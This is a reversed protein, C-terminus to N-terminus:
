DCCRVGLLPTHDPDIIKGSLLSIVMNLRTKQERLSGLAAQQLGNDDVPRRRLAQLM